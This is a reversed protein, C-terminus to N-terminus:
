QQRRSGTDFSIARVLKVTESIILVVPTIVGIALAIPVVTEWPFGSDSFAFPWITWIAIASVLNALNTVIQVLSRFWKPEFFFLVATAVIAVTLAATLYPVVDNWEETLFSPWGWEVLNTVIWIGLFYVALSFGYGIRRGSRASMGGLYKEVDKDDGVTM